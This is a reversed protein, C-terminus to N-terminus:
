DSSFVGVNGLLFLLLGHIFGGNFDIVPALLCFDLLSENGGVFVELSLVIFQFALKPLLVLRVIALTEQYLCKLLGDKSLVFVHLLLQLVYLPLVLDNILERSLDGTEILGDLRKSHVNVLLLTVDSLLLYVDISQEDLDSILVRGYLTNLLVVFLQSLDDRHQMLVFLLELRVQFGGGVEV